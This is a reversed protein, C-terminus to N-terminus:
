KRNILESVYEGISLHFSMADKTINSISEVQKQLEKWKEADGILERYHETCEKWATKYARVDSSYLSDNDNEPVNAAYLEARQEIEKDTLIM